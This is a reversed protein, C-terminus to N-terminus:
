QPPPEHALPVIGKVVMNQVVGSAQAAEDFSFASIKRRTEVDM